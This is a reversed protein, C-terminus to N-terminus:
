SHQLTFILNLILGVSTAAQHKRPKFITVHMMCNRFLMKYILWVFRPRTSNALKANNIPMEEHYQGRNAPQKDVKLRCTNSGVKDRTLESGITRRSSLM